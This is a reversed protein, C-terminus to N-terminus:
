DNRRIVDKKLCSYAVKRAYHYKITKKASHHFKEVGIRQFNTAICDKLIGNTGFSIDIHPSLLNFFQKTLHFDNYPFAFVRYNINFQSCVYDVSKIAQNVQEQLALESFKPHDISHGGFTFGANILENINKSTLYPTNENLFRDYNIKLLRSIENIKQKEAYKVSLILDEIKQSVDTKNGLINLIQEKIQASNFTKLYEIIISKKNDLGLEKNDIFNKTLFITSSMKLDTLIPAVIDYLEKFGDDFTLMFSNKPIISKQMVSSMFEFLNIPNYHKLLFKIDDTFSDINRYNYLNIVHPLRKDSVVHYNIIIPNVKAMKRLLNFPVPVNRNINFYKM